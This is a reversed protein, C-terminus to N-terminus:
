DLATKRFESPTQSTAEKFARNFPAISGYGVDLAIQLVQERARVPDSLARKAEAIRWRNLFSSFNRYGLEQNILRRLVHEPTGVESAMQAVSLGERRYAGEDMLAILKEFLPRDAARLTPSHGPPPANPADAPPPDALLSTRMSLLWSAFVASPTVIALAQLWSLQEIVPAFWDVMETLSIAIGTTAVVVAFVVRFQRRQEILDNPVESLALYMAHGMMALVLPQHSYLGIAGLISDPAFQRALAAAGILVFPAFRWFRWRFEDDFLATAFWWFFVGNFLSFFYGAPALSGFLPATMAGSFIVWVSTAFAFLAGLRARWGSKIHAAFGVFVILTFGAAVGRLMAELIDGQDFM